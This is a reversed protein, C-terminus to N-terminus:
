EEIPQDDPDLDPGLAPDLDQGTGVWAKAAGEM